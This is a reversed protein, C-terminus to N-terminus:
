EHDTLDKDLNIAFFLFSDPASHRKKIFRPLLFANEAILAAKEQYGAEESNQNVKAFTDSIIAILLNFMIIM